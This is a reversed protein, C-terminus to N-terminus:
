RKSRSIFLIKMEIFRKCAKHKNCWLKKNKLYVNRGEMNNNQQFGIYETYKKNLNM